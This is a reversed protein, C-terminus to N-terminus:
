PPTLRGSKENPDRCFLPKFKDNHSSLGDERRDPVLRARLAMPPRKSSPQPSPYPGLSSIACTSPVCMCSPSQLMESALSSTKPLAWSLACLQPKVHLCSCLFCLLSFPPSPPLLIPSSSGPDQLPLLVIRLFTFYNSSTDPGPLRPGTRRTGGARVCGGVGEGGVCACKWTGVAGWAGM